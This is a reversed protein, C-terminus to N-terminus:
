VAQHESSPEPTEAIEEPEDSEDLEELERSEDPEEPEYQEYPEEQEQNADREKRDKRQQVSLNWWNLGYEQCYFCMTQENTNRHSTPITAPCGPNECRYRGATGGTSLYVMEGPIKPAPARTAPTKQTSM